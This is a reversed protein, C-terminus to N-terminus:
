SCHIYTNDTDHGMASSNLTLQVRRGQSRSRRPLNLDLQRVMDRRALFKSAFWWQWWVCMCTCPARVCAVAATLVVQHPEHCVCKCVQVCACMCVHDRRLFVLSPSSTPSDLM